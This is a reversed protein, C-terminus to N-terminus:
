TKIISERSVWEGQKHMNTIQDIADKVYKQQLTLEVGDSKQDDIDSLRHYKGKQLDQNRDAPLTPELNKINKHHVRTGKSITKGKYVKTSTSCWEVPKGKLWYQYLEILQM